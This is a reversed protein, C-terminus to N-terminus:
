CPDSSCDFLRLAFWLFGFTRFSLSHLILTCIIPMTTICASNSANQPCSPSFEGCTLALRRVNWVTGYTNLIMKNLRQLSVM